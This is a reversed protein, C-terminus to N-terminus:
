PGEPTPYRWDKPLAPHVQGFTRMKEHRQTPTDKSNVIGRAVAAPAVRDLLWTLHSRKGDADTTSFAHSWACRRDALKADECAPAAFHLGDDTKTDKGGDKRILNILADCDAGCQIVIVEAACPLTLLLLLVLKM